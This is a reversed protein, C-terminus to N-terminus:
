WWRIAAVLGAVGAALVGVAAIVYSLGIQRAFREAGREGLQGTLNMKTIKM